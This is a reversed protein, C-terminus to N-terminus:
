FSFELMRYGAIFGAKELTRRSAINEVACGAVPRWGRSICYEALYSIIFQGLGQGRFGKEVLMGIDFDPRGEIVRSFIGFGVPIGEKEFILLQKKNIYELVEHDHDFVEENIEIIHKEDDITAQRATVDAYHDKNCNPHYTRFLVGVVRTKKQIGVCCSLLLHDFSKCVATTISFDNVIRILISDALFVFKQTIFYELLVTEDNTLFYGIQEGNLHILYINANVVSLELFLEQPEILEDLYQNRLNAIEDLSACKEFRYPTQNESM